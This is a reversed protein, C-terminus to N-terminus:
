RDASEIRGDRLRIHRTAFSAIDDEHTVMVITKGVQNLERFIQVIEIGTATDLSGTPEDAILLDPDNALARAIAVRQQQGGSLETPLHDVRDALGVRDLLEHARLSRPKRRIGQYIMPLEVNRLASMRSVLHFNQFIFGIRQGRLDALRNALRNAKGDKGPQGIIEGMFRYEGRDFADLCGIINLLTTKGSGSPGMIALFDQRDVILDIDRLVPIRRKGLTYSKGLRRIDILSGGAPETEGVPFTPNGVRISDASGHSLPSVTM